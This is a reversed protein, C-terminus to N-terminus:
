FSFIYRICRGLAHALAHFKHIERVLRKVQKMEPMTEPVVTKFNLPSLPQQAEPYTNNTSKTFYYM